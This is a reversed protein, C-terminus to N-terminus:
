RARLRSLGFPFVNLRYFLDERFSKEEVLTKLNKNTASILRVNVKVPAQSGVPDVEAEQLVRLLKVQLDFPLEGIEDLFITGGDAEEFKGVHKEDAGTFAGKEHGFLISEVLNEPIAGCNVIIFPKHNRNSAQWIANAFVEKGVGSEGELLIPVDVKAAKLALKVSKQMASSHGIINSFTIKQKKNSFSKGSSEKLDNRKFCELILNNLESYDVPKLFVEDRNGNDAKHMFSLVARIEDQETLFIKPCELEQRRLVRLCDRGVNINLSLAFVVLEVDAGGEKSLFSFLDESHTCVVVKYNRKKCSIEFAQVQVPDDEILLIKRVM